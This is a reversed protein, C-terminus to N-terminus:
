LKGATDGDGWSFKRVISMGTFPGQYVKGNTREYILDLLETKRQWGWQIYNNLAESM